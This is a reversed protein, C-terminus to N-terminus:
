HTDNEIKSNKGIHPIRGFLPSLPSLASYVLLFLGIPTGLRRPCPPSLPSLVRPLPKGTAWGGGELFSFGKWFRAGGVEGGTCTLGREWVWGCPQGALRTSPLCARASPPRASGPTGRGGAPHIGAMLVRPARVACGASLFKLDTRDQATGLGV